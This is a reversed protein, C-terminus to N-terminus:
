QRCLLIRLPCGVSMMVRGESGVLGLRENLSQSQVTGRLAAGRISIAGFSGSLSRSAPSDGVWGLRDRGRLSSILVLAINEFRPSSFGVLSAMVM